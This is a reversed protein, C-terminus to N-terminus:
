WIIWAIGVLVMMLFLLIRALPSMGSKSYGLAGAKQHLQEAMRSAPTSSDGLRKTLFYRYECFHQIRLDSVERNEGPPAHETTKRTM